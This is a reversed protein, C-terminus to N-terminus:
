EQVGGIRPCRTLPTRAWCPTSCHAGRLKEAAPSGAGAVLRIPVVGGGGGVFLCFIFFVFSYYSSIAALVALTSRHQPRAPSARATAPSNPAMPSTIPGM